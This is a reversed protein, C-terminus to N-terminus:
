AGEPNVFGDRAARILHVVAEDEVPGFDRYFSGVSLFRDTVVPVDIQDCQMELAPVIASPAVPVALMVRACGMQRVARIAALTTWGTAIGDDVILVDRDTLSPLPGGEHYAAERRRQEQHAAEVAKAFRDDGIDVDEPAVIIGGPGVAGLAYEPQEPSRIKTVVVARLEANIGEAVKYAVVIGGRPIGLVIPNRSAEGVRLKHLREALVVGADERNVFPPWRM